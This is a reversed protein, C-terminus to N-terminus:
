EKVQVEVDLKSIIQNPVGLELEAMLFELPTFNQANGFLLKALPIMM